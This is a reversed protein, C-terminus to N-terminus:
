CTLSKVLEDWSNYAYFLFHKGDIRHVIKEPWYNLQNKTPMIYDHESILAATYISEQNPSDRTSDLLVGLEIKQSKVNRRPQHILFKRYLARDKCMRAYFKVRQKEDLTDYTAQVIDKPIGFRDDIPFLSGNIALSATLEKSFPYFIQQGVWVGMSWAVLIVEEYKGILEPLDQDVSLDTYDYFMLVNWEHSVLPSFPHEDMGWGNCFFLLKNGKKHHLWKSKV